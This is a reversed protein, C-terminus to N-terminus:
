ECSCYVKETRQRKPIPVDSDAGSEGDDGANANKPKLPACPKAPPPVYPPLGKADRERKRNAKARAADKALHDACKVRTDNPPIPENCGNAQCVNPASTSMATLSTFKDNTMVEMKMEGESTPLVNYM